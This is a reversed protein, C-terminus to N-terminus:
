NFDYEDGGHRSAHSSRGVGTASLEVFEFVPSYYHLSWSALLTILSTSYKPNFM